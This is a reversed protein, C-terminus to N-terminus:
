VDFAAVRTGGLARGTVEDEREESLCMIFDLNVHLATLIVWSAPIYKSKM